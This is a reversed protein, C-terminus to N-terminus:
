VLNKGETLYAPTEIDKLTKLEEKM